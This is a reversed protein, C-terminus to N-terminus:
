GFDQVAATKSEGGGGGEVLLSARDGDALVVLDLDNASGVLSALALNDLDVALLPDDVNLANVALLSGSGGDGDSDVGGVNDDGVELEVLVVLSEKGALVAGLALLLGLINLHASHTSSVKEAGLNERQGM